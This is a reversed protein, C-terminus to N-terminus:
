QHECNVAYFRNRWMRLTDSPYVPDCDKVKLSFPVLVTSMLMGLWPHNCKLPMKLPKRPVKLYAGYLGNM